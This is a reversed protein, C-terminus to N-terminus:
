HKSHRLRLVTWGLAELIKTKKEDAAQARFTHSPGDMEIVLRRRPLAFDVKYATPANPFTDRVRKTKIPYERLFGLPTLLEELLAVTPGPDQGNGGKFSCGHKRQAEALGKLHRERVDPSRMAAKTARSVKERWEPDQARIRNTDSAKERAEPLRGLAFNKKAAELQSPRRPYVGKPM